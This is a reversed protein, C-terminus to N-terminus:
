IARPDTVVRTKSLLEFARQSKDTFLAFLVDIWYVQLFMPLQRVISQGLGIPAGSERVVRLGLARKGVTFGLWHEAVITYLGFGFSAALIVFLLGFSLLFPWWEQQNRAVLFVPLGLGVLITLVVVIVDILKALGRQLFSASVLPVASLYSEALTTPDGLQRLVDEVPLGSELREAIHGRLEMAIQARLPTGSPLHDLVRNIYDDAATM